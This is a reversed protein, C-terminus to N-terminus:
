SDGSRVALEDRRNRAELADALRDVNASSAKALAKWEDRDAVVDALRERWLAVEAAHAPGFRIRGSLALWAFALLAALAGGQTFFALWETPTM